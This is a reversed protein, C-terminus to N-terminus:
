FEWELVGHGQFTEQGKWTCAQGTDLVDERCLTVVDNNDVVSPLSSSEILPSALVDPVFWCLKPSVM